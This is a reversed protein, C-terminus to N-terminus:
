NQSNDENSTETEPTANVEFRITATKENVTVTVEYPKTWESIGASEMASRLEGATAKDFVRFAISSISQQHPNPVTWESSGDRKYSYTGKASSTRGGTGNSSGSGKPAKPIEVAVDLLVAAAQLKTALATRQERLSTAEASTEDKQSRLYGDVAERAANKAEALRATVDELEATLNDVSTFPGFVLSGDENQPAPTEGEANRLVEEAKRRREAATGSAKVLKEDIAAIQARMSDLISSDLQFTSTKSM